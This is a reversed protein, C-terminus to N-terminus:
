LLTSQMTGATISTPTNSFNGSGPNGLNADNGNYVKAMNSTILGLETNPTYQIKNGAPLTIQAGTGGGDSSLRAVYGRKQASGGVTPLTAVGSVIIDGFSNIEMQRPVAEYDSASGTDFMLDNCWLLVGSPSVKSISNHYKADGDSYYTLNFYANGDSDSVPQANLWFRAHNADNVNSGTLCKSWQIVGDETMDNAAKVKCIEIGKHGTANSSGILYGYHVSGIPASPTWFMRYAGLGVGPRAYKLMSRTTSDSYKRGWGVWNSKGADMGTIYYRDLPHYYYSRSIYGSNADGYFGHGDGAYMESGQQNQAGWQPQYSSNKNTWAFSVFSADGAANKAQNINQVRNMTDENSNQNAGVQTYDRRGQRNFTNQGTATVTPWSAVVGNKGNSGMGTGAIADDSQRVACNKMDIWSSNSDQTSRAIIGPADGGELKWLTTYGLNNRGVCYINDDDDVAGGGFTEYQYTGEYIYAIWGQRSGGSFLASNMWTSVATGPWARPTETRGKFKSVSGGPNTRFQNFSM